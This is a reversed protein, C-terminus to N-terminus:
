GGPGSHPTPMSSTFKCRIGPASRVCVIANPWLEVRQWSGGTPHDTLPHPIGAPHGLGLLQGGAQHVADDIQQLQSTPTQVIWFERHQGDSPMAAFGVQSDFATIGSLPEAEFGLARSLEQDSLGRTADVPMKLTQTWLDSSLVVVKGPKKKGLRIATEVLTAPDDTDPKLRQWLAKIQPAPGLKVDACVIRERTILVITQTSSQIFLRRSWSATSKM